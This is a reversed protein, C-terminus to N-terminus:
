QKFCNGMGAPNKNLSSVSIAGIPIRDVAYEPYLFNFLEKDGNILRPLISYDEIKYSPELNTDIFFWNDDVRAASAFHGFYKSNESISFLVSQYEIDIAKMLEQFIIAQQNCIAYSNELINNPHLNSTYINSQSKGSLFTFLHLLWNENIAIESDGHHFRERILQDAFYIAQTKTLEKKEIENLFYKELKPMSNLFLLNSNYVENKPINSTLFSTNPSYLKLYGFKFFITILFFSAFFAFYYRM